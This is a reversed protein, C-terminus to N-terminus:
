GGRCMWARLDVVRRRPGSDTAGAGSGNADNRSPVRGGSRGDGSVREM